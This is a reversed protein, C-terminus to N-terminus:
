AVKHQGHQWYTENWDYIYKQGNDEACCAHHIHVSLYRKHTWHKYSWSSSSSEERHEHCECSLAKQMNLEDSLFSDHSNWKSNNATNREIVKPDSTLM